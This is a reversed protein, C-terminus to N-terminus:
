CISGVTNSQAPVCNGNPNNDENSPSSGTATLSRMHGLCELWPSQWRRTGLAEIEPFATAQTAM